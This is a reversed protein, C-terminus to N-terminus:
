YSNGQYVMRDLDRLEDVNFIYHRVKGRVSHEKFRHGFLLFDWDYLWMRDISYDDNLHVFLLHTPCDREHIRPIASTRHWGAKWGKRTKVSVRYPESNVTAVFDHEEHDGALVGDFLLKGYIEGLWGVLENGKLQKNDAYSLLKERIENQLSELRTFLDRCEGELDRVAQAKTMETM